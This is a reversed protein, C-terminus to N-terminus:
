GSMSNGRIKSLPIGTSVNIAVWFKIYTIEISIKIFIYCAKNM